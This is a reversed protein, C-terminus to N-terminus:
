EIIVTVYCNGAIREIKTLEFLATTGSYSYEIASATGNYSIIIDNYRMYGGSPLREHWLYLHIAGFDAPVLTDKNYDRKRQYQYWQIEGAADGEITIILNAAGTIAIDTALTLTAYTTSSTSASGLTAAGYYAKFTVSQATAGVYQLTKGSVQVDIRTTAEGVDVSPLSKSGLTYAYYVIYFADYSVTPTELTLRFRVNYPSSTKTMYAIGENKYTSTLTHNGTLGDASEDVLVTRTADWGSATRKKMYIYNASPSGAWFCRLTGDTPDRNLVPTTTGVSDVTVEADLSNTSYVYKTYTIAADANDFVIHVDDGENVGSFGWRTCYSVTNIQANWASGTWSKLRIQIGGAGTGWVAYMALMRQTTLPVLQVCWRMSDSDDFAWLVHPFGTGTTWTGDNASSKTCYPRGVTSGSPTQRYGIWPYGGSDVTIMPTYNIVGSAGALATQEAARWTITGDANPTGSRYLIPDGAVESSYAYHLYIGDFGVSFKQGEICARVATFDSWTINDMSTRYGLSTANSYWKWYRGNAYFEKRQFSRLTGTSTTTTGITVPTTSIVSTKVQFKIIDGIAIAINSAFVVFVSSTSTTNKESGILVDNRLVRGFATAGATAKLFGSFSMNGEKDSTWQDVTYWSTETRQGSGASRVVNNAVGAVQQMTPDFNIKEGFYIRRYTSFQVSRIRTKGFARTPSGELEPFKGMEDEMTAM